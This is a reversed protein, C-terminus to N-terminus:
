VPCSIGSLPGRRAAGAPSMERLPLFKERFDVVHMSGVASDNDSDSEANELLQARLKCAANVGQAWLLSKEACIGKPLVPSLLFSEFHFNATRVYFYFSDGDPHTTCLAIDSLPHM